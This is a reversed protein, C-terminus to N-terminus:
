GTTSQRVRGHLETPPCSRVHEIMTLQVSCVSHGDIISRPWKQQRRTIKRTPRVNHRMVRARLRFDCVSRSVFFRFKFSSAVTRIKRSVREVLTRSPAIFHLVAAIPRSHDTPSVSIVSGQVEITIINATSIMSNLVDPGIMCQCYEETLKGHTQLVRSTSRAKGRKHLELSGCRAM